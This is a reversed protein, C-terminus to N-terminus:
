QVETKKKNKMVGIPTSDGSGRLEMLLASIELQFDIPDAVDQKKNRGGSGVPQYTSTQYADGFNAKLLTQILTSNSDKNSYSEILRREHFARSSTMAVSLAQKFLKKSRAWDELQDVSVGLEDAM